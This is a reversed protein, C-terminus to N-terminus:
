GALPRMASLVPRPIASRGRLVSLGSLSPANWAQPKTTFCLVLAPFHLHGVATATQGVGKGRGRALPTDASIDRSAIIRQHACDHPPWQRPPRLPPAVEPSVAWLQATLEAARALRVRM